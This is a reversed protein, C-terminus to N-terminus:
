RKGGCTNFVGAGFNVIRAGDTDKNSSAQNKKKNM